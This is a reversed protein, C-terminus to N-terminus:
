GMAWTWRQRTRRLSSYFPNEEVDPKMCMLPIGSMVFYRCLDLFHDNKKVIKGTEGEDAKRRYMRIEEWFPQVSAFVKLMGTVLLKWVEVIGATVSNDAKSLNLGYGGESVPRTYIEFLRQGDIQSRGDSRPDIVGPMWAGRARIAEAHIAPLEGGQYHYDHIYLIKTEPNQAFWGVATRNWGVDMGYGRPWDSPIPRDPVKIDDEPVPYILGSGLVPIGKTRADRLYPPISLYLSDRAEKTLHPATEDWHGPEGWTGTIIKVSLAIEERRVDM